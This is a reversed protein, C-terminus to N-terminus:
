AAWAAAFRRLLTKAASEARDPAPALRVFLDGKRRSGAAPLGDGVLRILKRDAAKRDIWLNRRGWPTDVAIRGGGALTAAEVPATLWIDDGRVIVGEDRIVVTFLAGGARVQQGARLGPVLKLKLHRGDATAVQAEGGAIATAVDIEVTAERPPIPAPIFAVPAAPIDRLLRYAELVQRFAEADGGERDPHTRRAAERFATTLTAADAGPKVGLLRRATRVDIAGGATM